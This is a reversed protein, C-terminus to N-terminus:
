ARRPQLYLKLPLPECCTKKEEPNQCLEIGFLDLLLYDQDWLGVISSTYKPSIVILDLWKITLLVALMLLNCSTESEVFKQVSRLFSGYCFRQEEDVNPTDSYNSCGLLM